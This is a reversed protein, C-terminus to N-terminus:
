KNPIGNNDIERIEKRGKYIHIGVLLSFLLIIMIVYVINSKKLLSILFIPAWLLLTITLLTEPLATKPTEMLSWTSKGNYPIKLIGFYLALIVFSCITTTLYLFIDFFAFVYQLLMIFSMLYMFGAKEWKLIMGNFIFVIISGICIHPMGSRWLWSNDENIWDIYDYISTISAIFSIISAAQLGWLIISIFINRQREKNSPFIFDRFKKPFVNLINNLLKWALSYQISKRVSESLSDVTAKTTKPKSERKSKNNVNEHKNSTSNRFTKDEDDTVNGKSYNTKDEDIKDNSAERSGAHWMKIFTQVEEVSKPRKKRNPQMMWAIMEQMIKSVPYPYSFEEGDQIDSTSLPPLKTLLNYLTAGLAYLDTWAGIRTINQDIQETPAYGQHYCFASSTSFRNDPNLQKSAGFDILVINGENDLMINKPHLDLHWISHRHVEELGDLIQPLFRMVEHENFPKGSLEMRDALSGGSIFDMIYYSTDNEDFLDHVKVIHKNNFKRIRQAEKNFKEKQQAFSERNGSNSVSVTNHGKRECVDKMFFEKMAYKEDFKTNVVIYTNGFGGSSLYEVVKYKGNQLTTGIPLMSQQDVQKKQSMIEISGAVWLCITDNISDQYMYLFTHTVTGTVRGVRRADRM